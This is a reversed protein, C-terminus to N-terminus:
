FGKAVSAFGAKAFLAQAEDGALFAVFRDAAPNGGLAAAPYVIPTHSADAFAAVIKVGPEAAADSRYVIGLPAEGRGVLALAVRANAAPVLRGSVADWLGLRSLAEKAYRGVPVHSPDGVALRGEGLRAALADATLLLTGGSDEAPAVMVLTNGAVVLTRAKDVAGSEQLVDMWALDASVFVDVPAGAEIHRAAKSTASFSFEVAVGTEETFREGIATLANTMSSAAFVLLKEGALAPRASAVLLLTLSFSLFRLGFRRWM